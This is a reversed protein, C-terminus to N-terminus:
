AQWIRGNYSIKAVIRKGQRVVGGNGVKSCGAEEGAQMLAMLYANWKAAADAVSLVSVAPKRYMKFTLGEQLEM